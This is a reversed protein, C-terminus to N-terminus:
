LYLCKVISTRSSRVVKGGQYIVFFDTGGIKPVFLCNKLFEIIMLFPDQFYSNFNFNGLRMKIANEMFQGNGTTDGDM